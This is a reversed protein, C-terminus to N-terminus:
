PAKWIANPFLKHCIWKIWSTLNFVVMKCPVPLLRPSPNAIMYTIKIINVLHPLSVEKMTIIIVKDGHNTISLLARVYPGNAMLKMRSSTIELPNVNVSPKPSVILM